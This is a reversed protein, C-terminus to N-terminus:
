AARSARRYNDAKIPARCLAHVAEGQLDLIAYAVQGPQGAVLWGGIRTDNQGSIKVEKFTSQREQWGQRFPYVTLSM